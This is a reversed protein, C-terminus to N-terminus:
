RKRECRGIKRKKEERERENKGWGNEKAGNEM